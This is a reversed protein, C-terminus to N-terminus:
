ADKGGVPLVILKVGELMDAFAALTQSPTKGRWIESDDFGETKSPTRCMSVVSAKMAKYGQIFSAEATDGIQNVAFRGLPSDYFRTTM